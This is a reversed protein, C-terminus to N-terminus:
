ELDFVHFVVGTIIVVIWADNGAYAAIYRPFGLIGVGVQNSHIIFMILFPSILLDNRKSQEM